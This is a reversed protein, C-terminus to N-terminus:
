KPLVFISGIWGVRNESKNRIESTQPTTTVSMIERGRKISIAFTNFLLVAIM